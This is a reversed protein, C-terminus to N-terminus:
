ARRRRLLGLAGIAGLLAASPEPVLAVTNFASQATSAAGPTPDLQFNNFGGVGSYVVGNALAAGARMNLTVTTPETNPITTNSFRFILAETSNALTTNNGIIAFLNKGVWPAATPSTLDDLPDTGSTQLSFVGNITATGTGSTGMLGSTLVTFGSLIQSMTTEAPNFTPLTGLYSGIVVAGTNLFSGSSNVISMTNLPGSNNTVTYSAASALNSFACLSASIAILRTKM